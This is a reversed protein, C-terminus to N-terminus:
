SRKFNSEKEGRLEAAERQAKMPDNKDFRGTKIVVRNPVTADKKDEEKKIIINKEKESIEKEVIEKVIEETEVSTDFSTIPGSPEIQKIENDEGDIVTLPINSIITETTIPTFPLSLKIVGKSKLFDVVETFLEVPMGMKLGGYNILIPEMNKQSDYVIEYKLNPNDEPSFTFELAKPKEEIAM